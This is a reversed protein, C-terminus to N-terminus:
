GAMGLVKWVGPVDGMPRPGKKGRVKRWAKDVVLVTVLPPLLLASRARSGFSKKARLDGGGGANSDTAGPASTAGDSDSFVGTPPPGLTGASTSEELSMPPTPAPPPVGYVSHREPIGRRPLESIADSDGSSTTTDEFQDPPILRISRRKEATSMSRKLSAVHHAYGPDSFQVVASERNGPHALHLPIDNSQTSTRNVQKGGSTAPRSHQNTGSAGAHAVESLRTDMNMSMRQIHMNATMQRGNINSYGGTWTSSSTYGTSSFATSTVGYSLTSRGEGGGTEGSSGGVSTIDTESTLSLDSMPTRAESATRSRESSLDSSDPSSLDRSIDRYPVIPVLNQPRRGRGAGAGAGGEIPIPNSIVLDKARAPNVTNLPAAPRNARPVNDRSSSPNNTSTNSRRPLCSQCRRKRHPRPSSGGEPRNDHHSKGNSNTTAPGASTSVMSHIAPGAPQRHGKHQPANNMLTPMEIRTCISGQHASQELSSTDTGQGTWVVSPIPKPSKVLYTQTDINYPPAKLTGIIEDYLIQLAPTEYIFHCRSPFESLKQAHETLLSHVFLYIARKM